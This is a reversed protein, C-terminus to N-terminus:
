PFSRKPSGDIGAYRRGGHSGVLNQGANCVDRGAVQQIEDFSGESITRQARGRHITPTRRRHRAGLQTDMAQVFSGYFTSFHQSVRLECLCFRDSSAARCPWPPFSCPPDGQNWPATSGPRAGAPSPHSNNVGHPSSRTRLREWRPATENLYLFSSNRCGPSPFLSTVSISRKFPSPAEPVHMYISSALPRPTLSASNLSSGKERRWNPPAITAEQEPSKTTAHGPCDRDPCHNLKCVLQM